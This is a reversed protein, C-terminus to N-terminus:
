LIFENKMTDGSEILIDIDVAPVAIQVVSVIFEAIEKRNSQRGYARM